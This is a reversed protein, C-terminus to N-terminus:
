VRGRVKLWEERVWLRFAADSMAPSEVFRALEDNATTLVALKADSSRIVPPLASKTIYTWLHRM